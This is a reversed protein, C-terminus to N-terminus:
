QRELRFYKRPFSATIKMGMKLLLNFNQIKIALSTNNIKIQKM